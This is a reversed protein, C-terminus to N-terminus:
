EKERPDIQDIEITGYMWMICKRLKREINSISDKKSNYYNWKKKQGMGFFFM